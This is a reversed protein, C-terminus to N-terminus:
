RSGPQVRQQLESPGPSAGRPQPTTDFGDPLRPPSRKAQAAGGAVRRILVREIVVDTLPRNGEGQPVRAIHAVIDEPRCQGFITYANGGEANDLQRAAADTIFFQGGNTNAGTNAMCLQGARDHRLSAHREDAITYGVTGSGDRLPDGGQVMYAPIVRHFITNTYLPRRVWLGSAADWWSRIGRALGVFNAVTHPTKDAFLDCFLTGLDTNIEAVLQGDIPMGVVAEELSFQGGHPDPSTPVRILRAQREAEAREGPTSPAPGVRKTPNALVVEYGDSTRLKAPAAPPSGTPAVSPEERAENDGCGSLFMFVLLIM